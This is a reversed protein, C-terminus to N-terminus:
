KPKANAYAEAGLFHLSVYPENGVVWSDHGPAIYFVDGAKMEIVGGDDMAATACGSLVMGVHEVACSKAGTGRGVHASWKWGPEYTARGITMGGLKIIEFRGKEFRRVEDPKEFRKLIVELM